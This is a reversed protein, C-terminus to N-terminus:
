RAGSSAGRARNLAHGGDRPKLRRRRARAQQDDVVVDLEDARQVGHDHAGLEGVAPGRRVRDLHDRGRAAVLPQRDRQRMAEIDRDDVHLQGVRAADVENREQAGRTREALDDEDRPERRHVGRHARQPRARVGEDRFREPGLLEDRRDLLREALHAERALPVLELAAVAGEDLQGVHEDHPEVLRAADREEVALGREECPDLRARRRAPREDVPPHRVLIARSHALGDRVRTESLGLFHLRAEGVGLGPAPPRRLHRRALEALGGRAPADPPVERHRPAPAVPRRQDVAEPDVDGLPAGELLARGVGLGERGHAGQGQVERVLHAIGEVGGNQLKM